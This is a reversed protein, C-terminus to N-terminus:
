RIFIMCRLRDMPRLEKTLENAEEVLPLAEAFDQLFNKSEAEGVRDKLEEVYLLCQEYEPCDM